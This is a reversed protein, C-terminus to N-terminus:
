CFCKVILFHIPASPSIDDHPLLCVKQLAEMQGEKYPLSEMASKANEVDKRRASLENQVAAAEECKSMLQHTKEKLERECHNIKTKLQKL